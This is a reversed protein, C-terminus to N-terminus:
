DSGNRYKQPILSNSVIFDAFLDSKLRAGEPTVYRGDYYYKKDKPFVKEFDFFEANYEGAVKKLVSNMEDFASIYEESSVRTDDTFLPSYAFSAIIAVIGHDRAYGAINSINREFYVPKNTELMKEASVEKFIGDPYTGYYKQNLFERAYYTDSVNQISDLDAVPQTVGLSVLIMRLATSNEFISSRGVPSIRSSYHGSNDGRYVEPPWVIRAHIDKIAHYIIIMDPELDLVRTMFNIKSEWSTWGAVGSNVVEM